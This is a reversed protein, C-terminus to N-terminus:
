AVVEPLASLDSAIESLVEAIDDSMLMALRELVELKLAKDAVAPPQKALKERLEAIAERVAAPRDTAPAKEPGQKKVAQQAPKLFALADADHDADNKQEVMKRAEAIHDPESAEAEIMNGADPIHNKPEAKKAPTVPRYTKEYQTKLQYLGRGDLHLLGDERLGRLAPAIDKVSAAGVAMAIQTPKCVRLEAVVKLIKENM